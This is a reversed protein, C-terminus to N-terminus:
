KRDKTKHQNIRDLILRASWLWRRDLRDSVKNGGYYLGTMRSALFSAIQRCPQFYRLNSYHILWRERDSLRKPPRPLKLARYVIAAIKDRQDSWIEDDSKWSELGYGLRDFFDGMVGGYIANILRGQNDMMKDYITPKM